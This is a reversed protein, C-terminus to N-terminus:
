RAPKHTRLKPQTRRSSKGKRRLTIAAGVAEEAVEGVAIDGPKHNRQFKMSMGRAVIKAKVRSALNAFAADFRTDADKRAADNLGAASEKIRMPAAIVENGGAGVAIEVVHDPYEAQWAYLKGHEAYATSEVGEVEYGLSELAATFEAAVARRKAEAERDAQARTEAVRRVKIQRIEAEVAQALHDLEVQAANASDSERLADLRDLVADPVATEAGLAAVLRQAEQVCAALVDSDRARAAFVADSEIAAALDGASRTDLAHALSAFRALEAQNAERAVAQAHAGLAAEYAQKYAAKIAQLQRTATHLTETEAGPPVDPLEPVPPPVFRADRAHLREGNAAAREIADFAARYEAVAATREAARRLAEEDIFSIESVKPGSM